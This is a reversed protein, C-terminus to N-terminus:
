RIWELFSAARAARGWGLIRGLVAYLRIDATPSIDRATEILRRSERYLGAAGCQRALHFLERAFSRFEPSAPDVGAQRAHAAILEHAATRDRLRAPDGGAGRSLRGSPHDRHEGVVEDVYALRVGLAGVRCDYEWDEELRLRTWPGAEDTVSRRYLPSLTEWWRATLFSPLITAQVQNANKWDCVIERGADDRYRTIGYAVGCDPHEELARVQLEFKSPELLDDSDLLQIYEGAAMQRGAERAVGPGGNTQHIVRVEAHDRALQDAAAATEDTSGDDVIVVEIPRYTQALVSAVAEALMARRNYVPIITTVLGGAM